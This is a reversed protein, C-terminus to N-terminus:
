REANMTEEKDQRDQGDMNIGEGRGVRQPTGEENISAQM